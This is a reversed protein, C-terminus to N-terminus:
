HIFNHRCWAESEEVTGVCQSDNESTSVCSRGFGCDATTKCSAEPGLTKGCNANYCSNQGGIRDMVLANILFDLRERNSYIMEQSKQRLIPLRDAVYFFNEEWERSESISFRHFKHEQNRLIYDLMYDMTDVKVASALSTLRKVWELLGVKAGIMDPEEKTSGIAVVRIDEQKVGLKENAYLYSYLAPSKAVNSGSVYVDGDVVAPKFYYQTVASTWVMDILPMNHNFKPEQENKQYWKSYFRPTRNNIDWATIMVDNTVIDQVSADAPILPKLANKLKSSEQLGVFLWYIMSIVCYKWFFYMVFGVVAAAWNKYGRREQITKKLADLELGIDLL